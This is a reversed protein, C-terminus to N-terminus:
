VTYHCLSVITVISIISSEIQEFLFKLGFNCLWLLEIDFNYNLRVIFLYFLFFPPNTSKVQTSTSNQDESKPDLARPPVVVRSWGTTTTTTAFRIPLPYKQLFLLPTNPPNVRRQSQTLSRLRLFKCDGGVIESVWVAM